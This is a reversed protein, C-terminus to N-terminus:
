ALKGPLKSELVLRALPKFGKKNFFAILEHNDWWCETRLREVRLGQLNQALQELIATAIGQGAFERDVLVTDLVAVPEPQGFEGFNMSALMAGVLTGDREAGLSIQVDSERLARELKGEYWATRTRGTAQRDMEILRDLDSRKVIRITVEPREQERDM